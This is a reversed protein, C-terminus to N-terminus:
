APVVEKTTVQKEVMGLIAEPSRRTLQSTRDVLGRIAAVADLGTAEGDCDVKVLYGHEM